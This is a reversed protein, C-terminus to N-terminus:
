YGPVPRQHLQRYQIRQQHPAAFRSLYGVPRTQVGPRVGYAYYINTTYHVGVAGDIVLEVADFSKSSSFELQTPRTGAGLLAQVLTANVVKSERLEPTAGTLYTRLTVTGLASVSPLLGAAATAVIMGARYGAPAVGTLKLRLAVPVGVSATVDTNLTAYTAFSGDSASAGATVNGSGSM